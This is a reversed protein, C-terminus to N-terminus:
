EDSEDIDDVRDARDSALESDTYGLQFPKIGQILEHAEGIAIVNSAEYM